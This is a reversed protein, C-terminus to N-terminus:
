DLYSAILWVIAGDAVAISTFIKLANMKGLRKIRAYDTLKGFEKM